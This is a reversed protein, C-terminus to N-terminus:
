GTGVLTVNAAPAYRSVFSQRERVVDREDRVTRTITVTKGDEAHEVWVRTGRRLTPDKREIMAHSARVINTVSPGEIAVRWGPNVGRLRVIANGNESAAEVLLWNNTDNVFRFDLAAQDDVTADLGVMGSPPRGYRPMWYLHWSRDVIPLGARFAAHFVTTAVQCIGGGVSPLTTVQGNSIAIGYGRQFGTAYTVPGSAQNFSFTGGPPVLAGNIRELGLAVNAYRERASDGFYTQGEALVDPFSLDPAPAAFSTAAVPLAIRAEGSRLGAALVALAAGRDLRRGPTGSSEARAAGDRWRFLPPQPAQDVRPALVQWLTDAAAPDVSLDARLLREVDATTLAHTSEGAVLVPPRALARSATAALPLLDAATGQAPASQLVPAVAPQESRLAAWAADTTAAVDLRRGPRPPTIAARGGELRLTPEIPEVAVAAALPALLRTWAGRDPTVTGTPEVTLATALAVPPLHFPAPTDVITLPQSLIRRLWDATARLDDSTTPAPVAVMPVPVPTDDLRQAQDALTAALAGWDVQRGPQDPEIVPNIGNLTLQADVPPRDLDPVSALAAVLAAEDITAALTAPTGGFPLVGFMTAAPVLDLSLGLAMREVTWTQQDTSFPQVGAMYASAAARLRDAAEAGTAISAVQAGYRDAAPLLAGAAGVATAVGLGVLRRRGFSGATGLRGM